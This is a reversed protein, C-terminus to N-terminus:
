IIFHIQLFKSLLNFVLNRIFYFVCRIFDLSITIDSM